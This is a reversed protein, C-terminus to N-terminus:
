ILSFYITAGKTKIGEAWVKGGHLRIIRDVIALGIGTGEFAAESHLRHFPLFMKGAYQQDFGVGNDRVYYIIKGDQEVTGFEIRAPDTKATFKWANGLLNSVVIEILGPDAFATIGEKIDIEVSRVPYAERLENIISAAITSVNIERRKIEHSSMRSLNLLDDILRSMKEAADRIHSLYQKGKKDLKDAIHKEVIDAFASIHRLPARLDHSVSYIFSELEKNAFMLKENRALLDDNLRKIKEEARKRETIDIGHVFIGCVSGDPERMPLYVFDLWVKELQGNKGRSLMLSVDNAAYPECTEFVHDLIEPYPTESIEPLADSLKKGIIDRKGVVDYYKENALEFVHEPGRLICIFSPSREVIEALRRESERLAEEARKRSTTEFLSFILGIVEGAPGKVPILTWDWYTVGREPQDPFEFAKDRVEFPEGTDRVHAFIAENEAHPYLVFHNKGVMDEPLYGCSTAYTENVRVFNFDRDLYVLHSNKAGNMVTQLLDREHQLLQEKQKLDTIDHAVHVAGIMKGTEDRLPTTSVMFDGGLRGDHAEQSHEKGDKLTRVHPCFDPPKSTGHVVEYCHMGICEDPKRGFQRAMSENVRMVKHDADLIAIMDPVGAFTREWEEKARVLENKQVSPKQIGSGDMREIQQRLSKLEDILQSKTKRLDDM